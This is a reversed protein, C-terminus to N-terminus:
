LTVLHRSRITRTSFCSSLVAVALSMALHLHSADPASFLLLIRYFCSLIQWTHATRCPAGLLSCALLKAATALCLGCAEICCDVAVLILFGSGSFLYFGGLSFVLERVILGLGGCALCPAWWHPPTGWRRSLTWLWCSFPHGVM